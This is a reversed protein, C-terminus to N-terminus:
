EDSRNEPNVEEGLKPSVPLEVYVRTGEGPVSKIETRGGLLRARERMGQLGYCSRVVTSPDFGVGTDCIELQIWDDRRTMCIDIRDAGAHRRANTIAEQLIRFVTSEVLPDLREPGVDADFRIVPGDDPQGGILDKVAAVIGMEDLVPPRLGSILQRAEAIAEGMLHSVSEVERRVEPSLGPATELLTDLRMRAGTAHQVMGDHIEYALLRRDRDHSRLIQRVLRREFHPGAEAVAVAADRGDGERAARSRLRACERRLLSLEGLLERRTKLADGDMPDVDKVGTARRKRTSSMRRIRSAVHPGRHNGMVHGWYVM